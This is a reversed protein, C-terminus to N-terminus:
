PIYAFRDRPVHRLRHRPAPHPLPLTGPALSSSARRGPERCPIQARSNRRIRSTSGSRHGRHRTLICAIETIVSGRTTSRIRAWTRPAHPGPRSPLRSRPLEPALRSVPPALRSALPRSPFWAHHLARCPPSDGRDRRPRSLIGERYFGRRTERPVHAREGGHRVGIGAVLLQELSDPAQAASTAVPCCASLECSSHFDFDSM